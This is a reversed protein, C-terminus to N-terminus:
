QAALYAIERKRWILFVAGFAVLLVCVLALLFNVGANAGIVLPSNPNGLCVPCAWASEGSFALGAISATWAFYSISKWKKVFWIGYIFLGVFTALSLFGLIQMTGDGTDAAERLCWVGLGLSLLNSLFIFAVHFSKLGM